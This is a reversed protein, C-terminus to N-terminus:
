NRHCLAQVNLSCEPNAAAAIVHISVPNTSDASSASSNVHDIVDRLDQVMRKLQRDVSEAMNYRSVVVFLDASGFDVM